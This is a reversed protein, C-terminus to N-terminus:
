NETQQLHELVDRYGSVLSHNPSKAALEVEIATQAANQLSRRERTTMSSLESAISELAKVDDDADSDSEREASSLYAMAYALSSALPSVPPHRLMERARAMVEEAPISKTLGADLEAVRRNIEEMWEPSIPTDDDEEDESDDEIELFLDLFQARERGTLRKAAELLDDLPNPATATM